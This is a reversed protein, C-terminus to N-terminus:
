QLNLASVQHHKYISHTHFFYCSVNALWILYIDFMLIPTQSLFGTDRLSYIGYSKGSHPTWMYNLSKNEHSQAPLSPAPSPHSQTKGVSLTQHPCPPCSRCHCFELLHNQERTWMWKNGSKTGRWSFSDRVTWKWDAQGVTEWEWARGRRFMIDPCQPMNQIQKMECFKQPKRQYVPKHQFTETWLLRHGKSHHATVFFILHITFPNQPPLCGPSNYFTPSVAKEQYFINVTGTCSVSNISEPLSSTITTNM